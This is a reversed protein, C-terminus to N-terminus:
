AAWTADLRRHVSRWLPALTPANGARSPRPSNRSPRTGGPAPGSPTPGTCGGLPRARFARAPWSVTSSGCWLPMRPSPLCRPPQPAPPSASRPGERGYWYQKLRASAADEDRDTVYHWCQRRILAAFLGCPNTTGIGRAHEALAVFTLRASESTGILGHEQAQTYLTLLRATERLDDPIIHQLTPPTLPAPTIHPPQTEVGTKKCPPPIAPPPASRATDAAPAPQQHQFEQFPEINEKFLPPLGTTCFEAPPPSQADPPGAQADPQRAMVPGTWALSILTYTGWRNGVRQSTHFTRLWGIEVLYKRAAKVSRLHIGFVEAIWSAKCWGGSLCRQERYYLCRLLHGLMTAIVTARCGGAILRVTQRPVPVRRYLNVVANHMTRFDAVDHVGLLDAASRAFTLKKSSWALLGIAELRRISTRLHEGGEGGVLGHLEKRTYEPEQGHDLQCRRAVMEQAAFWVRFDMLQIHRARYSWWLLCIQQVTLFIFGGEPKKAKLKLYNTTTM